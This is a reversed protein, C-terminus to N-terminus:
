ARATGSPALHHVVVLLAAMVMAGTGAVATAGGAFALLQVFTGHTDLQTTVIITAALTALAACSAATRALARSTTRHAGPVADGAGAVAPGAPGPGRRRLVLGLGVLSAWVGVVLFAAVSDSPRHWGASLTALATLTAYGLGIWAAPARLPVPLVLVLAVAVSFAVTSHGSPLSNLTAPTTEDLGFDPREFVWRKLVQSTVNAGVVLVVAALALDRRLRVLAIISLAAAAALLTLLTIGDLLNEVVRTASSVGVAGRLSAGDISRGTTSHVALLDTVVLLVACWAGVAALWAAPLWRRRDLRSTLDGASPRPGRDDPDSM